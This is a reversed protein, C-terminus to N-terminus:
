AGNQLPNPDQVRKVLDRIEMQNAIKACEMINMGIWDSIELLDMNGDAYALFDLM